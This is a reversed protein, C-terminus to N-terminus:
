DGRGKQLDFAVHIKYKKETVFHLVHNVYEQQEIMHLITQMEEESKCILTFWMNYDNDRLYNHTIGPFKEM